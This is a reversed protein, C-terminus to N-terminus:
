FYTFRLPHWEKIIQSQIEKIEIRLYNHLSKNNNKKIKLIKFIGNVKHEM